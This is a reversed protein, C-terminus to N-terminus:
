QDYIIHVYINTCVYYVWPISCFVCTQVPLYISLTLSSVVCLGCFISRKEVYCENDPLFIVCQMLVRWYPEVTQMSSPASHISCFVWQNSWHLHQLRSLSLLKLASLNIQLDYLIEKCWDEHHIWCNVSPVIDHSINKQTVHSPSFDCLMVQWLILWLQNWKINTQTKLVEHLIQWSYYWCYQEYNKIYRGIELWWVSHLM